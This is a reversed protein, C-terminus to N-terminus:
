LLLWIEPATPIDSVLTSKISISSTVLTQIEQVYHRLNM